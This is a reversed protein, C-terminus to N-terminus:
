SENMNLSTDEARYYKGNHNITIEVTERDKELTVTVNSMTNDDFMRDFKSLKKEVLEKFSDKITVKRGTIFVKM